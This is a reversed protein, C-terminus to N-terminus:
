TTDPSVTVTGTDLATGTGGMLVPQDRRFYDSNDGLAQLATDVSVGGTVQYLSGAVFSGHNVVPIAYQLYQATAPDSPDYFFIDGPILTLGADQFSGLTLQNGNKQVAGSNLYILVTVLGDAITVNAMQIDYLQPDGIVDCSSYPATYSYNCDSQTQGFTDTVTDAQCLAATLLIFICLLGSRM